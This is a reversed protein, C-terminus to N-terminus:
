KGPGSNPSQSCGNTVTADWDIKGFKEEMYNLRFRLREIEKAAEEINAAVGKSFQAECRVADFRLREVIGIM